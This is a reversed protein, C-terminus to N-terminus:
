GVHFSKGSNDVAALIGWTHSRAHALPRILRPKMEERERLGVFDLLKAAAPSVAQVCRRRESVKGTGVILLWLGVGEGTVVPACAASMMPARPTTNPSM